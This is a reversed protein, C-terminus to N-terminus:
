RLFALLVCIDDRTVCVLWGGWVPPWDARDRVSGNPSTLQDATCVEQPDSTVAFKVVRAKWGM